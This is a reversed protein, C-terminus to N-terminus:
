WPGAVGGHGEQAKLEEAKEKEIKAVSELLGNRIAPPLRYGCPQADQGRLSAGRAGEEPTPPTGLDAPWHGSAGAGWRGGALEGLDANSGHQWGPHVWPSASHAPRAGPLTGGRAGAKVQWQAEVAQIVVEHGIEGRQPTSAL